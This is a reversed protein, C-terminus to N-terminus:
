CGGRRYERTCPRDRRSELRRTEHATRWPHTSQDSHYARAISRTTSKQSRAVSGDDEYDGVEGRAALDAVDDAGFDRAIFTRSPGEV